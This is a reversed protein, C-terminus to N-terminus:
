IVWFSIIKLIEDGKLSWLYRSLRMDVIHHEGRHQLGDHLRRRCLSPPPFQMEPCGTLLSSHPDCQAQQERLVQMISSLCALPVLYDYCFYIFFFGIEPM